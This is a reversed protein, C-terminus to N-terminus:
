ACGAARSLEPEGLGAGVAGHVREVGALGLQIPGDLGRERKPKPEPKPRRLRITGVLGITRREAPHM